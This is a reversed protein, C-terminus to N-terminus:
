HAFIESLEAIRESEPYRQKFLALQQRARKKQGQEVLAKFLATDYEIHQFHKGITEMLNLEVKKSNKDALRYAYFGYLALHNMDYQSADKVLAIDIVAAGETRAQSLLAMTKEDKFRERPNISKGLKMLLAEAAKPVSSPNQATILNQDIAVFPLMPVNNVFNAGNAKLKDEILFAFEKMEEGSFAAEEVNTFSNVNKGAVFFEGGKMKIDAIAAPGHCVAAITKDTNAFQSLLVQTPQHFPLDMMAGGGGVIFVGQYDDANVKATALTNELKSLALSKFRQIYALDDKNNKVLVAGGKPSAIDLLLGNDYMVLYAQALEELDYSLNPKETTGHSSIVMLVKAKENTQPAAQATTILTLALTLIMAFLNILHKM